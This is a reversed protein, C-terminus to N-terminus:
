SLSTLLFNGESFPNRGDLLGEVIRAREPEFLSTLVAQVIDSNPGNRLGGKITRVGQWLELISRTVLEPQPVTTDGPKQSDVGQTVYLIDRPTWGASLMQKWQQMFDLTKCPNTFFTEKLELLEVFHQLEELTLGLMSSVLNHRYLQSVNTLNLNQTQKVGSVECLQVLQDDTLDLAAKLTAVGEHIEVDGSGFSKESFHKQDAGYSQNVFLTRYLSQSGYIDIDAWLSLLPIINL